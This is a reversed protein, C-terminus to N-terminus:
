WSGVRPCWRRGFTVMVTVFVRHEGIDRKTAGIAASSSSDAIIETGEGALSVLSTHKHGRFRARIKRPATRVRCRSRGNWRGM